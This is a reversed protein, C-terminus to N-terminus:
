FLLRGSLSCSLLHTDYLAVYLRMTSQYWRTSFRQLCLCCITNQMSCLAWHALSITYQSIIYRMGKRGGEEDETRDGRSVHLDFGDCEGLCVGSAARDVWIGELGGLCHFPCSGPRYRLMSISVGLKGLLSCTMAVREPSTSM